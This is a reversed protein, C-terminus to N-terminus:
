PTLYPQCLREVYKSVVDVEINVRTGCQAHQLTSVSLTHPIITLHVRFRNNPTPASITNLTLSVGSVAISAKEVCYIYLQAPLTLTLETSDERATVCEIEGVADVHGQVLHGSLRSSLSAARELNVVCGETLDGLATRSLTEHSLFFSAIEGFSGEAVTLCVGDVAVSEGPVLDVYGTEIDLRASGALKVIRRVRGQREVIGTFM